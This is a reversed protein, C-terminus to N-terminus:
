TRSRTLRKRDMQALSLLHEILEEITTFETKTKTDDTIFLDNQIYISLKHNLKSRNDRRLNEIELYADKKDIISGIEKKLFNTNKKLDGDEFTIPHVRATNGEILKIYTLQSPLKNQTEQKCSIVAFSSLILITLIRIM